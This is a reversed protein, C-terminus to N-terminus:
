KSKRAFIIVADSLKLIAKRLTNSDERSLYSAGLKNTLSRITELTAETVKDKETKTSM